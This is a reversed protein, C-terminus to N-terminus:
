ENLEKQEHKWDFRTLWQNQFSKLDSLSIGQATGTNVYIPKEPLETRRIQDLM